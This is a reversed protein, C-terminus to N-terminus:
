DKPLPALILDPSMYLTITTLDADITPELERNGACKKRVMRVMSYLNVLEHEDMGTCLRDMSFGRLAEALSAMSCRQQWLRLFLGCRLLRSAFAKPTMTMVVHQRALHGALATVDVQGVFEAYPNAARLEHLCNAVAEYVKCNKVYFLRRIECNSPRRDAPIESWVASCCALGDRKVDFGTTFVQDFSTSRQLTIPNSFGAILGDDNRGTASTLAEFRPDTVAVFPLIHQPPPDPYTLSAIALVASSVITPTAGYVMVSDGLVAAEWLRLLDLTRKGQVLNAVSLSAVIDVDLYHSNLLYKKCQPTWGIGGILELLESPSRPVAVALGGDFTPIQQDTNPERPFLAIAKSLFDSILLLLDESTVDRLSMSSHLLRTFPYVYPLRTVIVFSVQRHGRPITSDPTTSFICYCFYSDVRYIFLVSEVRSQVATDPFACTKLSILQADTLSVHGISGVIQPGSTSDFRLFFVAADDM